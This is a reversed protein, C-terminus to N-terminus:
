RHVFNHSTTCTSGATQLTSFAGGPITQQLLRLPFFRMWEMGTLRNWRMWYLMRVIGGMGVVVPVREANVQIVTRVIQKREEHNLTPTEATTGLVVLYDVGGEILFHTLYHLSEYDVAGNELFPTVMAVGLGKLRDNIKM